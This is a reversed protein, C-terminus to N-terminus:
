DWLALLFLLFATSLRKNSVLIAVVAQKEPGNTQIKKGAKEGSTNSDKDILRTETHLL